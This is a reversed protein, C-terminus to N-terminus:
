VPCLRRGPLRGASSLHPDSQAGGSRRAGRGAARRVALGRSQHADRHGGQGRGGQRLGRGGRAVAWDRSLPGGTPAPDDQGQPARRGPGSWPCLRVLSFVFILNQRGLHYPATRVMERDCALNICEDVMGNRALLKGGTESGLSLAWDLALAAAEKASARSRAVRFAEQLQGADRYMAVADKWNNAALLHKEAAKLNGDRHMLAALDMHTRMLQDPRHSSVLRVLQDYNKARDRYMDIAADVQDAAVYLQEAERYRGAAELERGAETFLRATEMPPIASQRAAEYARSWLGAKIYMEVVKLPLQGRLFFKEAKDYSRVSAYHKGLLQFQDPEVKSEGVVDLIDAAKEWQQAQIAARLATTMRGAEIYHAVAQDPRHYAMLHDGWSEELSTVEAPFATRALDIAKAYAHGKRYAQLAKDPQGTAQYMEGVQVSMNCQQLAAVVEYVLEADGLLDNRQLMLRAAKAPLGAKLYMEVALHRDGTREYVEAATAEQWTSQLWQLYDKRLQHRDSLNYTDAVRLADEWQLLQRYMRVADEPSGQDIYIREASALDGHFIDM